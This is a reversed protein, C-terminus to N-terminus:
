VKLNYRFTIGKRPHVGFMLQCPDSIKTLAGLSFEGGGILSGNLLLEGTITQLTGSNHFHGLTVYHIFLEKKSMLQMFSNVTRQIGYWPIQMWSKINDGHLLLFNYKFVKDIHFFSKPITFELHKDKTCMFQMNRYLIYDWNIYKRKYVKKKGNRIEGHNGVVGIFKTVRFMSSLELLCQAVVAGGSEYLWDIIDGDATEVLEEHILGNVFDGLGYIRLEPLKYTKKLISLIRTVSRTLRQIREKFIQLDYEGLGGMEEKSVREGIHLDSLLLIVIEEDIDKKRIPTYMREYSPITINKQAIANVILETSATDKYLKKIQGQQKSHESKYYALERTVRELEKANSANILTIKEKKTLGM